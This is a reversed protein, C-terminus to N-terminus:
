PITNEGPNCIANWAEAVSLSSAHGDCFLANVMRKGRYQERKSGGKGHRAGDVWFNVETAITGINGSPWPWWTNAESFSGRTRPSVSIYDAPGDALLLRDASKTWETVKLYRGNNGSAIYARDAAVNSDALKAYPNMAYGTRAYDAGSVADDGTAKGYEPCGWLVSAERLRDLNNGNTTANNLDGMSNAGRIGSVFELIRDSWRLSNGTPIPAGAYPEHRAVPWVGKYTQAYMQFGVGLERLSSLCKVSRAQRRASNLSPMLIGILLAIIGIVVL